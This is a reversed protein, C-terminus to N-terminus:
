PAELVNSMHSTEVEFGDLYPKRKRTIKITFAQFISTKLDDKIM